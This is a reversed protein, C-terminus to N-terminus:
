FKIGIERRRLAFGVIGYYLLTNDLIEDKANSFKNLDHNEMQRKIKETTEKSALQILTIVEKFANQNFGILYMIWMQYLKYKDHYAEPKLAEECHFLHILYGIYIIEEFRRKIELIEDTYLQNLENRFYGGFRPIEDNIRGVGRLGASKQDMESSLFKDICYKPIAFTQKSILSQVKMDFQSQDNELLIKKISVISQNMTSSEM